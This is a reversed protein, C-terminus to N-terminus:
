ETSPRASASFLSRILEASLAYKALVADDVIEGLELMLNRVVDVKRIHAAMALQRLRADRVRDTDANQRVYGDLMAMFENVVDPRRCLNVREEIPMEEDELAVIAFWPVDTDYRHVALCERAFALMQDTNGGRSPKMSKLLSTYVRLYGLEGEVARDFWFRRTEGAISGRNAAIVMLGEAAEPREPHLRWAELLHNRAAALRQQLQAEQQPDPLPLALLLASDPLDDYTMDFQYRWTLLHVLWPDVGASNSVAALVAGFYGRFAPWQSARMLEVRFHRLESAAFPGAAAAAIESVARAMLEEDPTPDDGRLGVRVVAQDAALLCSCWRPYPVRRFGEAARGLCRDAAEFDRSVALNRGYLQLVLPDDCGAEVAQAGARLMDPLEDMNKPYDIVSLQRVMRPQFQVARSVSAASLFARAARDWAANRSGYTDYLYPYREPLGAPVQLAAGPQQALPTRPKRAFMQAVRDHTQPDLNPPPLSMGFRVVIDYQDSGDPLDEIRVLCQADPGRGEQRFAVVGRGAVAEASVDNMYILAPLHVTTRANFLKDGSQPSWAVGNLKLEGPAAGEFLCETQRRGIRFEVNGDLTGQIRLENYSALPAVAPMRGRLARQWGAKALDALRSEAEESANGCEPGADAPVKQVVAADPQQQPGCPAATGGPEGQVVRGMAAACAALWVAVSAAHRTCRNFNYPHHRVRDPDSIRKFTRLRLM